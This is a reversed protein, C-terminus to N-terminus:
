FLARLLAEEEQYEDVLARLLDLRSIVHPRWTDGAKNEQYWEIADGFRFRTANPLVHLLKDEIETKQTRLKLTACLHRWNTVDLQYWFTHVTNIPQTLPFYEQLSDILM